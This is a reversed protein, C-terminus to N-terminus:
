RCNDGCHFEAIMSLLAIYSSMSVNASANKDIDVQHVVVM